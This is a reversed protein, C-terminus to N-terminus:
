TGAQPEAIQTATLTEIVEVIEELQAQAGRLNLGIQLLGRVVHAIPMPVGCSMGLAIAQDFDKLMLAMAFSTTRPTRAVMAPLMLRSTRNRGSGLNIAETIAALPLGMKRGAAVVELTALRCGASMLNNVMKMAQADGVRDGCRLVNPSIAQLLAEARALAEDPGSTMITITGASAGAIGGSVPADVVAIGRGALDAAISRTEDPVGSTQDIVLAGPRLAEAIGGEDLLAARVDLSRPLCLLVVDCRRALDAASAAPTAGRGVMAAVASPNVDWVTLARSQLLRGALAGGMAGLGIYGIDM